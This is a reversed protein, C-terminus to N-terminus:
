GLCSRSRLLDKLDWTRGNVEIFEVTFVVIIVLLILSSLSINNDSLNDMGEIQGMIIEPSYSHQSTSLPV